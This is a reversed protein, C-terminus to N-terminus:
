TTTMTRPSAAMIPCCRVLGDVPRATDGSSKAPAQAGQPAGQGDFFYRRLSADVLVPSVDHQGSTVHQLHDAGGAYRSRRQFGANGTGVHRAVARCRIEIHRGAGAVAVDMHEVRFERKRVLADIRRRAGGDFFKQLQLLRQMEVADHDHLRAHVGSVIRGGRLAIL